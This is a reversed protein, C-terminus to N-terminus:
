MMCKMTVAHMASSYNWLLQLKRVTVVALADCIFVLPWLCDGGGGGLTDCWQMMAHSSLVM